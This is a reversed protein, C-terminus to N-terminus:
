GGFENINRELQQHERENQQATEELAQGWTKKLKGISFQLRALNYPDSSHKKTSLGKFEGRSYARMENLTDNGLRAYLDNIKNQAYDQYQSNEGYAVKYAAQQEFVQRQFAAYEKSCYQSLFTRSLDDLAPRIDATASMNYKWLRRDAPLRNYISVWMERLVKDDLSSFERKAGIVKDRVYQNLEFSNEMLSNVVQSKMNRITKKSFYGKPQEVGDIVKKERSSYPETYAVHIHINDTNYHIAASWIATHSIGEKELATRMMRRTADQLRDENLMNTVPDYLGLQTLFRNDFSIVTQWMINDNDYATQFSEKLVAKQEATLADLKDTFIGGTKQPNDMYDTYQQYQSFFNYTSFADNRVAEARDIYNIYEAFVQVLKNKNKQTANKDVFKTTVVVGAKMRGM